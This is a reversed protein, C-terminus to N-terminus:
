SVMCVDESARVKEYNKFEDVEAQACADYFAALTDYARAKGYFSIIKDLIEADRRWDKTQLFNAAM